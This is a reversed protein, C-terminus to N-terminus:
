RYIIFKHGDNLVFDRSEQLEDVHITITHEPPPLEEPDSWSWFISYVEIFEGARLNHRILFELSARNDLSQKHLSGDWGGLAIGGGEYKRTYPCYDLRSDLTYVFKNDFCKHFIFDSCRDRINGISFFFSNHLHEPLSRPSAIYSFLSM